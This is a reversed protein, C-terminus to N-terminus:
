RRERIESLGLVWDVSIDLVACIDRLSDSSPMSDGRIWVYIVNKGVHAKEAIWSASKGYEAV